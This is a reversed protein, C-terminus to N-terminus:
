KNPGKKGGVARAYNKLARERSTIKQDETANEPILRLEARFAERAREAVETRGAGDTGQLVSFMTSNVRRIREDREITM